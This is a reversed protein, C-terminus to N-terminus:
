TTPEKFPQVGYGQDYRVSSVPQRALIRSAPRAHYSVRSATAHAETGDSGDVNGAFVNTM